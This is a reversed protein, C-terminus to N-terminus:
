ALGFVWIICTDCGIRDLDARVTRM